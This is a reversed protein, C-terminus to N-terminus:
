INAYRLTSVHYDDINLKLFVHRSDDDINLKFFINRNQIEINLVSGHNDLIYTM